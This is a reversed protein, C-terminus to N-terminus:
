QQQQQQQQWGGECPRHELSQREYTLAITFRGPSYQLWMNENKELLGAFFTALMNSAHFPVSVKPHNWGWWSCACAVPMYTHWHITIRCTNSTRETSNTRSSQISAPKSHNRRCGHLICPQVWTFDGNRGRKMDHGDNKGPRCKARSSSM